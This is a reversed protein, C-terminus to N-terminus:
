LDFISFLLNGCARCLQCIETMFLKDSFFFTKAIYGVPEPLLKTNEKNGTNNSWTVYIIIKFNTIQSKFHDYVSLLPM